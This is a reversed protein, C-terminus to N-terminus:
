KVPALWQRWAFYHRGFKRKIWYAKDKIGALAQSDNDASLIDCSALVAQPLSTINDSLKISSLKDCDAFAQAEPLVEVQEKEGFVGFQLVFEVTQEGRQERFWRIVLFDDTQQGGLMAAEGAVLNGACRADM